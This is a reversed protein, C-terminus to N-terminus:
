AALLAAAVDELRPAIGPVVARLVLWANLARAVPAAEELLPDRVGLRPAVESWRWLRHRPTTIAPRPFGPDNVHRRVTERSVGAREAIEGITLQPDAQVALVGADGAASEVQAIASTVAEVFSPARRSVLATATTGDTGFTMDDCGAEFLLDLEEGNPERSLVLEFEYKM